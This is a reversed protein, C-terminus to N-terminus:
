FFVSHQIFFSSDRIKSSLKNTHLTLAAEVTFTLSLFINAREREPDFSCGYNNM